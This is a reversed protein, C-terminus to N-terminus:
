CRLGVEKVDRAGGERVEVAVPMIEGPHRMDFVEKELSGQRLMRSVVTGSVHPVRLM